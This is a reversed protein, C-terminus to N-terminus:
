KKNKQALSDVAPDPGGYGQSIAVIQMTRPDVLINTPLGNQGNMAFTFNPDAVVAISSLGFQTRWDSATQTTAPNGNADQIMLTVVHVGDTGWQGSMQAPLDMAEQQCASCWTASEDFVLANIGKSGDCDFYDKASVTTVNSSGEAYGQWTLSPSIVQGMQVGYPGSPYACAQSAEMPQQGADSADDSGSSADDGGGSSGADDGRTSGGSSSGGGRSPAADDGEGGGGSSGGGQTGSGWGGSSTASTCGAIALLGLM